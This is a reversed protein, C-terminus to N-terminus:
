DIQTIVAKVSISLQPPNASSVTLESDLEDNEGTLPWVVTLSFGEGVTSATSGADYVTKLKDAEKQLETKIASEILDSSDAPMINIYKGNVKLRIPFYINGENDSATWNELNVDMVEYTVEAGTEPTGSLSYNIATIESGPHLKLDTSSLITGDASSVCNGTAKIEVGWKAVGAGDKVNGESVYRALTSSTFSSTAMVLTMLLLGTVILKNPKTM